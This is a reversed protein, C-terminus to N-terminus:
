KRPLPKVYPTGFRDMARVIIERRWGRRTYSTFRLVPPEFGVSYFHAQFFLVHELVRDSAELLCSIIKLNM